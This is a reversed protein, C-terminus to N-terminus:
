IRVQFGMEVVRDSPLQYYTTADSANRAFYAFLRERWLTMGRKESPLLSQRGIYYTADELDVDLGQEKCRVLESPVNPRQMFGYHLIVRHFGHEFHEIDIREDAPVKPVDETVVNLLIVREHLAKSRRLHHKLSPPAEKLWPTVFIATGPVRVPRTHAVEGILTELPEAQKALATALLATGRRWTSLVTFFVIGVGIPFWGGHEVKTLNAGLFALDVTLFTLLFLLARFWGWRSYALAVNFALVTTIAMTSNVSVGYAAALGSSSQFGLVLGIAAAMLIWNIAPVYVQGRTEHSTQLVRVPPFLRLQVAQSTLSFAGTIAAQSAIITAATALAVLPYLGWAPALDYFPHRVSAPDALLQAGQGFYNLLLAPLVYAFWMLRIPRRGFHGLDAYLAEGGTVVLFVSGLTVFGVWGNRLFFEIGYFPNVAALVGPHRLIGGVGLTALAAFWVVIVPGFLAGVGATGRRQIAFLAVLIGVTVPVVYATFAPTAVELGEIASLISIAPTIMVDGYLLSGGFLGLMILLWRSRRDLDQWPRLLALLAFEGGEGRNNARLIFTIYKLSIMVILAWFMLSLVGLVNASDVRIAGHSLFCERLAYIPSTGIDGYVVGLVALGIAASM